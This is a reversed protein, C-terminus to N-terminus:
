TVGVTQLEEIYQFTRVDLSISTPKFRHIQKVSEANGIVRRIAQCVHNAKLGTAERVPKYVKHHLKTTNWCDESKAVELIQHCADAFRQLTRDIECRLEVTVPLKCKVSITQM